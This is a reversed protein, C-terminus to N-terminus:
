PFHVRSGASLHLHVESFQVGSGASHLLHVSSCASCCRCLYVVRFAGLGGKVGM